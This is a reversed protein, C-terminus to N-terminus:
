FNTGIQFQLNQIIDGKKKNIPYGYSVQILGIPSIWSFGIGYSLKFDCPNEIKNELNGCNNKLDTYASIKGADGFIFWRLDNGLYYKKSVPMYLQANAVIRKTGGLFEGTKNDRPGLSGTSYSRVTGIGGAYFNKIIPFDLDSYSTGYDLLSNLYLIYKNNNFPIYYQFQMSTHYYKLNLTSTYINFKTFYGCTPLILSDRTDINLGANLILSNVIHGYQNIYKKLYDSSRNTLYIKDNELYSGILLNQYKAYPINFDINIGKSKIYYNNNSWTNNTKYFCSLNQIIGNQTFYPNKYSISGIGNYQSTNLDISLSKGSGFLNAENINGSIILKDEAGYGIAFNISGTNKENIDINIDVFNELNNAPTIIYDINNFLGLRNLRKKSSLINNPNFISFESQDLERRIVIDDTITNGNIEIRNVYIRNNLKIHFIIEVENKYYNKKTTFNVEAFAYGNKNLNEKINQISNNINTISFLDGKKIKLLNELDLNKEINNINEEIKISSINYINGENINLSIFAYKLDNSLLIQPKEIFIDLYGRNLYFKYLNKIDINLKNKQFKDNHNYWSLWNTEKLEMINFLIKNSFAHNGIFNINKIIPVNGESINISISVKLTDLQKIEINVQTNYKGINIYQTKLSSIAEKLFNPNLFEGEIVSFSSFSKKILNIDFSKIGNFSISSIIPFEDLTINVINNKIDFQINDFLGTKYLLNISKSIDEKKIYQNKSFNINKYIVNKDINQLGLINIDKIYINDLSYVETVFFICLIFIIFRIFCRTIFFMMRNLSWNSKNSM